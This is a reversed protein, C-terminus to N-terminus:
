GFTGARDLIVLIRMMLRSLELSNKDGGKLLGKNVLKKITPKAWNPLNGDIYAWKVAANDYVGMDDYHDLRKKLDANEGSVTGIKDQLRKNEKALNEVEAKLAAFEKKETDTMAEEEKSIGFYKALASAEAEALKSLNSDIMLWEATKKNTHFGHEIIVGPVGVSKAGFLVGYYEDDLYGNGDRDFDVKKTYYYPAGIGMVQSVVGGITEAAARSKEDLLTKSDNAFHIMWPANASENGSANSHLSLFLDYGAASRGRATLEPDDNKNWRTLGVIFGKAELVAKLKWALTWTMNSEYYRPAVPSANYYSGAHGPDIMIKPM